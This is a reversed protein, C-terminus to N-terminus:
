AKKKEPQKDETQDAQTEESQESPNALAIVEPPIEVNKAKAKEIVMKVVEKVMDNAEFWESLDSATSCETDVIDGDKDKWAFTKKDPDSDDFAKRGAGVRLRLALNVLKVMPTDLGEVHYICFEDTGFPQGIKNKIFKVRTRIGIPGEVGDAKGKEIGIHQLGIRMGAYFKLANGGSTVEPNGFMVGIKNRTQNICVLTTDTKAMVGSIKRLCRSMMAAHVGMLTKGDLDSKAENQPLLAAISDIVIIGFAKTEALKEAYMMTQEGSDFTQGIVLKTIDVGASAVWSPWYAGEADLLAANLGLAQYSAIMKYAAYSKGSSEPGFLEIIVGRPHGGANSAADISPIGFPVIVADSLQNGMVLRPKKKNGVSVEVGKLLDLIDSKKAAM